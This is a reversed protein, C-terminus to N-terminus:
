ATIDWVRPNEVTTVYGRLQPVEYTPWGEKEEPTTSVVPYFVTAVRVAPLTSGYAARYIDVAIQYSKGPAGTTVGLRFQARQFAFSFGATRRQRFALCCGYPDGNCGWPGWPAANARAEAAEETDEDGLTESASGSYWVSTSGGYSCQISACTDMGQVTITTPTVDTQFLGEGYREISDAPTIGQSGWCWTQDSTGHTTIACGTYRVVGSYITRFVKPNPAHCAYESMTAYITGSLARTSYKKPLARPDPNVVYEDFGCLTATGGKNRCEM